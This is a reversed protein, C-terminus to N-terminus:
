RIRRISQVNVQIFQGDYADPAPRVNNVIIPRGNPGLNRLQEGRANVKTLFGSGVDLRVPLTFDIRHCSDRQEDVRNLFITEAPSTMELVFQNRANATPGGGVQWEQGQHYGGLYTRLEAVGRFRLVVEYRAGPAGRLNYRLSQTGPGLCTTPGLEALCPSEWRIGDLINRIDDCGECGLDPFGVDPFNPRADPSPGLDGGDPGSDSPDDGADDLGGDATEDESPGPGFTETGFPETRGCACVFFALALASILARRRVPDLM